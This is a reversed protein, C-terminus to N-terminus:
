TEKSIGLNSQTVKRQKVFSKVSKNLLLVFGISLDLLSMIVILIGALCHYELLIKSGGYLGGLGSVLLLIVLCIRAWNRGHYTLSFFLGVLLLSLFFSSSLPSILLDSGFSIFVVIMCIILIKKGREM